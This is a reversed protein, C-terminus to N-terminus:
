CWNGVTGGPNECKQGLGAPRLSAIMQSLDADTVAGAVDRDTILVWVVSQGNNAPMAVAHVAGRPPNCGGAPVDLEVAVHSARGGNATVDVPQGVSAQPQRGDDSAFMGVWRQATQTAAQALNGSEHGTVGSWAITYPRDSGQCPERTVEAVGSMVVKEGNPGEFGRVLGPSEPKWPPPVDYAANRSTSVAALWGPITSPILGAAAIPPPAPAPTGIQTPQQTPPAATAPPAAVPTARSTSTFGNALTITGAVLAVVAALAGAVTLLTRRRRGTGTRAAAKGTQRVMATVQPPLWDAPAVAPAGLAAALHQATPRAAPQKAFCPGLVARMGPPLASLDPDDVSVRRLMAVPNSTRGFPPTASAAFVLVSALSFVDSPAGTDEGLAQEPSMYAPTGIVNGTHTIKTADIARAIGFDILRPGDGALLVNSPKIDRHVVGKAHVAALANALHVALAHVTHEPMPGTTTVVEDLPPGAIYETALWPSSANPDAGLVAATWPSRVHQATAIERAFRARFEPDGTLNAHIVKIAVLRGSVDRGLYVQGMGGAGLRGLVRFPGLHTPDDVLLADM